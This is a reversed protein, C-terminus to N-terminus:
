TLNEYFNYAKTDISIRAFSLTKWAKSTLDPIKVFKKLQRAGVM